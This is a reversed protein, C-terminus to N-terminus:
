KIRVVSVDVLGCYLFEVVLRIDDFPCDKLIVYTECPAMTTSSSLVRDLYQSGACLMMRHGRLTRGDDCALTVDCWKMQKHLQKFQSQLHQQYDPWHLHNSLSKDM